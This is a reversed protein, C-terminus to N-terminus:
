LVNRIRTKRKILTGFRVAPAFLFVLRLFVNNLLRRVRGETVRKEEPKEKTRVQKASKIQMGRVILSYVARGCRRRLKLGPKVPDAEVTTGIDLM